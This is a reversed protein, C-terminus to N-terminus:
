VMEMRRYKELFSTDEQFFDETEEEMEIELEDCVLIILEELEDGSM